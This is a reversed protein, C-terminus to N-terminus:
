ESLLWLLMTEIQTNKWHWTFYFCNDSECVVLVSGDNIHAWNGLSRNEIYSTLPGKKM